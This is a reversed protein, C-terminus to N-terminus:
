ELEQEDVVKSEPYLRKVREVANRQSKLSPLNEEFKRESQRRMKLSKTLTDGSIRRQKNPVEDNFRKIDDRVGDIWDKDKSKSARYFNALLVSRRVEYVYDMSKVANIADWQRSMRTLNFGLATAAIEAAQVPDTADFKQVAFGARNTEEGNTLYRWAKSGGRMARPMAREWRKLSTFPQKFDAMAELINLPINVGAGLAGRSFEGLNSGFSADQGVRLSNVGPIVHGMSASGSLDIRPLQLGIMDGFAPLGFGSRSAGHLLIDPPVVPDEGAVEIYYERIAKELDWDKGFVYYGLAKVIKVLDDGFPLGLLGGIAAMVLLSRTGGPMYRAFFLSSQIYTYFTLVAGKWGRLFNPKAYQAYEFQSARVAESAFIYARIHEDSWGYQNASNALQLDAFIQPFRGQGALVAPTQPYRMALDWASEFTIFRNLKETGRFMIFGYQMAISGARRLGTKYKLRSVTSINAAAAVDSTISEDLFRDKMAHIFASNKPQDNQVWPGVNQINGKRVQRRQWMNKTLRSTATTVMKGVRATGALTGFHHTLYPLTFTPIQLLNTAAAAPSFGLYWLGAFARLGAWENAPNFIAELHMQMTNAINSITNANGPFVRAKKQLSRITEKLPDEYQARAMHGSAGMFYQAYVRQADESWGAIKKRKLFRKRFSQTPASKLAYLGLAQEMSKRQLPDTVYKGLLKIMSRQVFPPMGQFMLSDEPMVNQTITSGPYQLALEEAIEAQEKETEALQFELIKVRAGATDRVTVGYKGFRTHPFYPAALMQAVEGNIEAIKLQRTAPDQITKIAQVTWIEKFANMADIFDQQTGEFVTRGAPLVGFQQVAANVEATTPWRRVRALVEQPTRYEMESIYFILQSVRNAQDQGLNRWDVLRENAKALWNSRLNDWERTLSVFDTLEQIQPFLHSLQVVSLGNRYWKKWKRMAPATAQQFKRTVSEDVDFATMTNYMSHSLEDDYISDEINFNNKIPIGLPGTSYEVGMTDALKMKGIKGREIAQLWRNIVEATKVQLGFATKLEDIIKIITNKVAVFFADIKTVPTNPYMFSQAIRNAMWEDFDMLYNRNFSEDVAMSRYLPDTNKVSKIGSTVSRFEADYQKLPIASAYQMDRLYQDRTLQQSDLDLKGWNAHVVTHAMEHMVTFLFDGQNSHLTSNITVYFKGDNRNFDVYGLNGKADTVESNFNIHIDGLHYKQIIEELVPILRKIDKLFPDSKNYQITAKGVLPRDRIYKEWAKRYVYNYSDSYTEILPTLFMEPVEGKEAIKKRSPTKVTTQVLASLSINGDYLFSESFVSGPFRFGARGLSIVEQPSIRHAQAGFRNTIERDTLINFQRRFEKLVKSSPTETGNYTVGREKMLQWFNADDLTEFGKPITVFFTESPVMYVKNKDIKELDLSLGSDFDGNYSFWKVGVDAVGKVNQNPNLQLTPGSVNIRPAPVSEIRSSYSHANLLIVSSTSTPPIRLGLSIAKQYYLEASTLKDNAKVSNKMARDIKSDLFLNGAIEAYELAKQINEQRGVFKINGLGTKLIDPLGNLGAVIDNQNVKSIDMRYYIQKTPHIKSATNLLGAGTDFQLFQGDMKGKEGVAYLVRSSSKNASLVKEDVTGFLNILDLIDDDSINDDFQGDHQMQKVSTMAKRTPVNEVPIPLHISNINLALQVKLYNKFDLPKGTKFVEKYVKYNNVIGDFSALLSKKTNSLVQEGTFAKYLNQTDRIGENETVVYVAEDFNEETINGSMLMQALAEYRFEPERDLVANLGDAYRVYDPIQKGTFVEKVKNLIKASEGAFFTGKLQSRIDAETVNPNNRVAQIVAALKGQGIEEIVRQRGGATGTTAYENTIWEVVKRVNQADNVETSVQQNSTAEIQEATAAQGKKGIQITQPGRKKKFGIKGEPTREVVKPTEVKEPSTQEQQAPPTFPDEKGSLVEPDIVFDEIDILPEAIPESRSAPKFGVGSTTRAVGGDNVTKTFRGSTLDPVQVRGGTPVTGQRFKLGKKGVEPKQTQKDTFVSRRESGEATSKVYVGSDLGEVKQYRTDRQPVEDKRFKLQSKKGKSASDKVEETVTDSTSDTGPTAVKDTSATPQIINGEADEEGLVESEPQAVFGEPQMKKIQDLIADFGKTELDSFNRNPENTPKPPTKESAIADIGGGLVHGVVYGSAAANMLRSFVEGTTPDYNEDIFERTAVDVAEQTLETLGELGGVKAGGVMFKALRNNVKSQLAPVYKEAVGLPLKFRKAVMLPTLTELGTKIAGAVVSPVVHIEDTADFLESATGGTELAFGTAGVGTVVASPAYRAASIKAMTKPAIVVAGGRVMKGLLGGAILSGMIPIQEGLKGAAWRATNGFSLNDYLDEIDDIAARDEKAVKQIDSSTEMLDRATKEAGVIQAGLGADAVLSGAAMKGGRKTGKGLEGIISSDEIKKQEESTFVKKPRDLGAQTRLEGIKKQLDSVGQGPTEETAYSPVKKAASPTQSAFTMVETSPKGMVQNDPIAEFNKKEFFEDASKKTKDIWNEDVGPMPVKPIKKLPEVKPIASNGLFEYRLQDLLNRLDFANDSQRRGKWEVM